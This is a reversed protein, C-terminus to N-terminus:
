GWTWSPITITGTEGTSVPALFLGYSSSLMMIPVHSTSRFHCSNNKNNTDDDNNKRNRFPLMYAGHTKYAKSMIRLPYCTPLGSSGWAAPPFLSFHCIYKKGRRQQHSKNQRLSVRKRKGFRPSIIPWCVLIWTLQKIALSSMGKAMRDWFHM